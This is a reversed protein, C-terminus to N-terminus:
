LATKSIAVGMVVIVLLPVAVIAFRTFAGHYFSLSKKELWTLPLGQTLKTSARAALVNGVVIDIIEIPILLTVVLLVKQNLWDSGWFGVSFALYSGSLILAVFAIHELTILYFFYRNVRAVTPNSLDHREPLLRWILWGGLAPGLWFILAGIHILKAVTYEIV